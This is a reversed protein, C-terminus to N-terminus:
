KKLFEEFTSYMKVNNKKKNRGLITNNIRYQIYECLSEFKNLSLLDWKSGFQKKISSYFLGYKMEKNGVEAKKFEHYRDILYKIYNRHNISSAITDAPPHLRIVKKSTKIELNNTIVGKNISDTINIVNASAKNLFPHKGKILSIKIKLIDKESYDGLTVKSHCNSCLLIMNDEEHVEVESFPTIHHIEFTSVDKEGCLPCAMGAEQYLSKKIKEPIAKRKM